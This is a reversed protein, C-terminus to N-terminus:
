ELSLTIQGGLRSLAFVYMLKNFIHMSSSLYPNPSMLTPLFSELTNSLANWHTHREPPNYYSRLGGYVRVHEPRGWSSNAKPNRTHLAIGLCSQRKGKQAM